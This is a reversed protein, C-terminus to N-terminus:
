HYTIIKAHKRFEITCRVVASALDFSILMGDGMEKIQTGNFEGILKSHIERNKRLIEFARDEDSGMLAKISYFMGEIFFVTDKIIFGHREDKVGISISYYM